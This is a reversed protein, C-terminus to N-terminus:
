SYNDQMNLMFPSTSSRNPLYNGVKTETIFPVNQRIASPAVTSELHKINIGWQSLCCHGTTAKPFCGRM